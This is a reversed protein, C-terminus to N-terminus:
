FIKLNKITPTPPISGGAVAKPLRYSIQVRLKILIVYKGNYWYVMLVAGDGSPYVGNDVLRM